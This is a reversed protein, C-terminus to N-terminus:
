SQPHPQFKNPRFSPFNNSEVKSNSHFHYKNHYSNNHYDRLNILQVAKIFQFDKCYGQHPHNIPYHKPYNSKNHYKFQIFLLNNYCVKNSLLMQHNDLIHMNLFYPM